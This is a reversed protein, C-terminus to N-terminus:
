ATLKKFSEKVFPFAMVSTVLGGFGLVWEHDHLTNLACGIGLAFACLAGFCVFKKLIEM